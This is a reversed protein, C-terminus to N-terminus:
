SAFGAARRDRERPRLVLRVAGRPRLSAAAAPIIPSEARLEPRYRSLIGALLLQAEVTFFHSGLCQHGGVGFPIYSLKHRRAAREPSFREPDFVEPQEWLSPIRHTLYPCVIVTSNAKIAVGDIVDDRTARRPPIIWIAPYMRLLENLFMKTYVLRDIDSPSLGDPGVVRDIEDYLQAAIDPYADLAVWLWTLTIASSETAAAFMAVVTNRVERDDLSNGNEDHAQCLLSVMDQGHEGRRRREQVLPLVVDDIIRIANRFLRDRPLPVAAPVWPLLIRVGISGLADNLARALREADVKPIEGGFFVRTLVQHFLRTMETHLDFPTGTRAYQDLDTVAEDVAACLKAMLANINKASFLPQVLSRHLAWAPGESALGDGFLQRAPAWTKGDRLYVDRHDRLVHQVHDPRSIIYPRFLGLDLQVIEGGSERGIAEFAGLPDRVLGAVTRHLPIRPATGAM